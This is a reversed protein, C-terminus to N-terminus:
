LGLKTVPRDAAGAFIRRARKVAMTLLLRPRLRHRDAGDPHHVAGRLGLRAVDALESRWRAAAEVDGAGEIGVGGYSGLVPVGVPRASAQSRDQRLKPRLAGITIM